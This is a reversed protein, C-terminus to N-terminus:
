PVENEEGLLKLVQHWLNEDGDRLSGLSEGVEKTFVKAFHQDFEKISPLNDLIDALKVSMAAPSKVQERSLRKRTERNGASKPVDTLEQVLQTIIIGFNEELEEATTNTDELVDHLIAVSIHPEGLHAVRQAVRLPHCIYPEDIHKRRQGDHKKSAFIVAKLINSHVECPWIFKDTM